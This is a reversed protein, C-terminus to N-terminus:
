TGPSTGRHRCADVGGLPALLQDLLAHVNAMALGPPSRRIEAARRRQEPARQIKVSARRQRLRRGPSTTRPSSSSPEAADVGVSTRQEGHFPPPRRSTVVITTGDAEIVATPGM